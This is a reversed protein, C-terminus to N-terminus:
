EEAPEMQRRESALRVVEESDARSPFAVSKFPFTYGLAEIQLISSPMPCANAASGHTSTALGTKSLWSRETSIENLGYTSVPRDEPVDEFEPYTRLDSAAGSSFASDGRDARVLSPCM